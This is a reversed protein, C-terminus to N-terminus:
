LFPESRIVQNRHLVILRDGEVQYIYHGNVAQYGSGNAQAPLWIADQPLAKSQGFYHVQGQVECLQVRYNRTERDFLIRGACNATQTAGGQEAPPTLVPIEGAVLTPLYNIPNQAQNQPSYYEFHLHPGTSNGTSGMEAIVQGQEVWDDGQVYLMANHGYVTRSGDPHALTIAYGLGWDDWGAQIVQGAQAAFVATGEPGAIDIGEHYRHFTQSITGATPWILSAPLSSAPLSQLQATFIPEPPHQWPEAVVMTTLSLVGFWSMALSRGMVKINM